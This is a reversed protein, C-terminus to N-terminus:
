EGKILKKNVNEPYYLHDCKGTPNRIDKDGKCYPCINGTEEHIEKM